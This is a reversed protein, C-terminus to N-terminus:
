PKAPAEFFYETDAVLKEKDGLAAGDRKLKVVIEDADVHSLQNAREVKIAKKLSMVDPHSPTVRFTSRIDSVIVEADVVPPPLMDGRKAHVTVTNREVVKVDVDPSYVNFRGWGMYSNQPPTVILTNKFPAHRGTFTRQFSVVVYSSDDPEVREDGVARSYAGSTRFRGVHESLSKNDAANDSLLEIAVRHLRGGKIKDPILLVFDVRGLQQQAGSTAGLMEMTRESEIAAGLLHAAVSLGHQLPAKLLKTENKASESSMLPATPMLPLLALVVKEATVESMDIRTLARFKEAQLAHGFTFRTFYADDQGSVPLYVPEINKEAASSPPMVPALYGKRVLSKLADDFSSSNKERFGVSGSRLLEHMVALRDESWPGNGGGLARQEYLLSPAFNVGRGLEVNNASFHLMAKTLGIHSDCAGVIARAHRQADDGLHFPDGRLRGAVFTNLRERDVTPGRFWFQSDALEAPTVALDDLPAATTAWIAGVHDPLRWKLFREVLRPHQNWWVHAEDFAFIVVDKPSADGGRTIDSKKEEDDLAKIVATADASMKPLVRAVRVKRKGVNVELLNNHAYFAGRLLFSSKGSQCTGRLLLNRNQNQLLRAVLDKWESLSEVISGDNYAERDGVPVMAASAVATCFRMSSYQRPSLWSITPAAPSSSSSYLHRRLM